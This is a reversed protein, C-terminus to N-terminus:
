VRLMDVRACIAETTATLAALEALPDESARPADLRRRLAMVPESPRGAWAVYRELLAAEDRPPTEGVLVLTHHALMTLSDLAERLVADLRIQDTALCWLMRNRLRQSLSRISREIEHRLDARAIELGAFPDRGGLVLNHDRWQAIELAHVDVSGALETNTLTRIQLGARLPAALGEALDSLTAMDLVRAVVLLEAHAGRLARDERAAPGILCVAVLKTGLTSAIAEVAQEIPERIREPLWDLRPM